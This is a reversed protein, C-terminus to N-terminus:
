SPSLFKLFARGFGTIPFEEPNYDPSEDEAFVHGTWSQFVGLGAMDGWSVTFPRRRLDRSRLAYRSTEAACCSRSMTHTPGVRCKRLRDSLV